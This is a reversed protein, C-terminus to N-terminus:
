TRRSNNSLRLLDLAAGDPLCLDFVFLELVATAVRSLAKGPEVAMVM